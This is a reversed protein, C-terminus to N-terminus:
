REGGPRQSLALVLLVGHLFAYMTAIMEQQLLVESVGCVAVSLTLGLGAAAYVNERERWWLRAHYVGPVVLYGVLALLGVLGGTAMVEFYQSHAHGRSIQVVSDSIKGREHLEANLAEREPYSLGVLPRQKFAEVAAYWLQFRVGVSGHLNGGQLRQVESVTRQFRQEVEPMQTVAIVTLLTLVVAGAALPRGGLRFACALSVLLLVVPIVLWAGRTGSLLVAVAAMLAALVLWWRRPSGAMLTLSLTMLLANLYGFNISFLFGDARRMGLWQTQYLALLGGGVAGLVVGWELFARFSALDRPGVAHRLMLYIPVTAAMHLGDSLYRSAYGGAVFPGLRGILLASLLLVVGWDLTTVRLSHRHVVLYGVGYLMLLAVVVTSRVPSAVLLALAMLVAWANIALARDRSFVEAM